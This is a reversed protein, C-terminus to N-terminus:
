RYVAVLAAALPGSFPRPCLASSGTLAGFGSHLDVPTSTFVFSDGFNLPERRCYRRVTLRRTQVSEVLDHFLGTRGRVLDHQRLQDTASGRPTGRGPLIL